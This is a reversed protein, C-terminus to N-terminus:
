QRTQMREFEAITDENAGKGPRVGVQSPALPEANSQVELQDLKSLSERDFLEVPPGSHAHIQRDGWQVLSVIVPFLDRGSESLRYEERLGDGEVRRKEMLGNTVLRALRNSLVAQTVGIRRKFEGFRRVGYFADRLILLTWKDGIMEATRALSCNHHELSTRSM